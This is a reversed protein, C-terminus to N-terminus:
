RGLACTWHSLIDENDQLQYSDSQINYIQNNRLKLILYWKDAKFLTPVSYFSLPSIFNSYKIGNQRLDISFLARM